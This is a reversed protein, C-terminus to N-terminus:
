AKVAIVFLNDPVRFVLRELNRELDIDKKFKLNDGHLSMYIPLAFKTEDTRELLNNLLEQKEDTTKYLRAM